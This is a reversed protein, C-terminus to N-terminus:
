AKRRLCIATSFCPKRCHSVTTFEHSRARLTLGSSAVKGRPVNSEFGGEVVDQPCSADPPTSGTKVILAKRFQQFCKCCVLHSLTSCHEMSVSDGQKMSCFNCRRSPCKRQLIQKKPLNIQLAAHKLTYYVCTNGVPNSFFIWIKFMCKKGQCKCLKFEPFLIIKCVDYVADDFLRKRWIVIATFILSSVFNLNM